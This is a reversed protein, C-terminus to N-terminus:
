PLFSLGVCIKNHYYTKKVPSSFSFGRYFGPGNVLVLQKHSFKININANQNYLVLSLALTLLRYTLYITLGGEKYFNRQHQM